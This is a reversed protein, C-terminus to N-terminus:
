WHRIQIRRHIEQHPVECDAGVQRREDPGTRRDQRPACLYEQRGDENRYCAVTVDDGTWSLHFAYKATRFDGFTLPLPLFFFQRRTQLTDANGKRAISVM